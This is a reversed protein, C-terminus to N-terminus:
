ACQKKKRKKGGFGKTEKKSHALDSLGKKKAERSVSVCLFVRLLSSFLWLNQQSLFDKERERMM